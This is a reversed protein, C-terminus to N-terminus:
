PKEPKQCKAASASGASQLKEIVGRVQELQHGIRALTAELSMGFERVGETLEPAVKAIMPGVLLGALRAQQRRLNEKETAVAAMIELLQRKVAQEESLPEGHLIQDLVDRLESISFPKRFLGNVHSLHEPTIALDSVGTVYYIPFKAGRARMEAAVDRGDSGPLMIDLLALAVEQDEAIAALASRRDRCVVPRVGYSTLLQAMLEGIDVEDELVIVSKRM